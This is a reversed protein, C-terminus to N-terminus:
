EKGFARRKMAAGVGVAGLILFLIYLLAANEDGTKPSAPRTSSSSQGSSFAGGDVSIQKWGVAIPSLSTVKFQIGEETKTVAPHEIAGPKNAGKEVTFMHAVDFTHTNKGTGTPYPLTVTIGEEPFNDATVAVWNGNADKVKLVVDYVEVNNQSGEDNLKLCNRIESVMKEEIDAPKNYLAKLTDPVVSIGNEREQKYNGSVLETVATIRGTLEPLVSPLVYNEAKEGILVVEEAAWRLTVKQKGPTDKAYTGVLASAPCTFRVSDGSVFGLVKLEGYLSAKLEKVTGQRDVAELSSLDWVLSKPAVTLAYSADASLYDDTEAAYATITTHGRRLIHVKGNGDVTAVTPDSSTYTVASGAVANRAANTFDADGYTKKEETVDFKFETQAARDSVRITVVINFANYNRTETVPVTIVASKDIKEKDNAIQYSLETGKLSPMGTEAFIKDEDTVSIAGLKAGEPLISALDYGAANGYKSAKSVAKLGTYDAKAIDFTQEAAAWTYNRGAVPSVTVKGQGANTNNSYVTSYDEKSLTTQGAAVTVSPEVPSGTYVSGGAVTISLTITKTTIECPVEVTNRSLVYNGSRSGSLTLNLTMKAQGGVNPNGYEVPNATVTVNAKDAELADTVLSGKATGATTTGDYVKSIQYDGASVNLARKNVTVDVNVTKSSGSSSSFVAELQKTGVDGYSTVNTAWSFTGSVATNGAKATGNLVGAAVADGYTVTVPDVNVTLEAEPTSRTSRTGSTSPEYKESALALVGISGLEAKDEAGYTYTIASSSLSVRYGADVSGTAGALFLKDPAGASGADCNTVDVLYNNGDLTVINWMHSGAGTGGAMTGSVTYCETDTSLSSLDCLYKFAKAYGECVVNTNPDNDFVYILQWPNGYPMNVDSAAARNYSVLECIKESYAKLKEYDSKGANANVIAKANEAATQAAGVKATDITTAAGTSNRYEQAVTFTFKVNNITYPGSSSYSMGYTVQMGSDTKDFWYLEFPCDALLCSLIKDTNVEASFKKGLADKIAAPNSSSTLNLEQASWTKSYTVAIESSAVEGAAIKKIGEKLNDYIIKNDGTLRDGINVSRYSAMAMSADFSNYFVEEVYGAFLEDNSEELKGEPVPVTKEAVVVTQGDANAVPEQSGENGEALSVTGPMIVSGSIVVTALAVALLRKLKNKREEM